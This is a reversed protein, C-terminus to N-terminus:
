LCLPLAPYDVYFLFPPSRHAGVSPGLGQPVLGQAGLRQLEALRLNAQIGLLTNKKRGPGQM